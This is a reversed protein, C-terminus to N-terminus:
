YRTNCCTENFGLRHCANTTRLCMFTDPVIRCSDRLVSLLLQALMISALSVLGLEDCM